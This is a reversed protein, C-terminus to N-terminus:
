RMQRYFPKSTDKFLIVKYFQHIYDLKSKLLRYMLLNMQYKMEISSNQVLSQNMNKLPTQRSLVTKDLLDENLIAVWTFYVHIVMQKVCFMVTSINIHIIYLNKKLQAAVRYVTRHTNKKKKKQGTLM